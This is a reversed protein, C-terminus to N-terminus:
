PQLHVHSVTEPSNKGKGEIYIDSFLKFYQILANM